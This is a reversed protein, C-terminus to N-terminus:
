IFLIIRYIFYINSEVSVIYMKAYFLAFLVEIIFRSLISLFCDFILSTQTSPYVQCFATVFYWYFLMLIVEIIALILIKIKCIKLVKEVNLFIENKRKKSIKYKKDSKIKTEEEEFIKRLANTSNSLKIILSMLVFSLLTSYIIVTLNNSFTFLFLNQTYKYKKSINDNSYLLANLALDTSFMFIFLCIRLSLLELPNKQFFTHFVIQKSTLYIYFIKFISRNEYKIAEEFNYNHLTQNSEKPIYNDINNLNIKIIGYYVSKDNKNKEKKIGDTTLISPIKGKKVKKHNKPEKKFNNLLNNYKVDLKGKSNFTNDKSFNKKISSIIHTKDKKMKKKKKIPNCVKKKEEFFMRDNKNLYGYFVMENYMYQMIPKIGKYFYLGLVIINALLLFTFIWFGINNNKGKLSFVLNYCKIVGINSDFLSIENFENLNSSNLNITFNKTVTCDCEVTLDETNINNYKCGENCETFSQYIDERRDKLTIDNGSESYSYCIKNFFPDNANLPDIGKEQYKNISNIDLNTENNLKIKLKISVGECPSMELLGKEESYPIYQNENESIIHKFIINTSNSINYYSRLIQECESFDLEKTDSLKYINSGIDIERNEDSILKKLYDENDTFNFTFNEIKLENDTMNSIFIEKMDGNDELKIETSNLSCISIDSFNCDTIFNYDNITDNYILAFNNLYNCDDLIFEIKVYQSTLYNDYTFKVVIFRKDNKCIFAFDNTKNFYYVEINECNSM